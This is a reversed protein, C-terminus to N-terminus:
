QSTASDPQGGIKAMAVTGRTNSIKYENEVTAFSDVSQVIDDIYAFGGGQIIFGPMSRHIFTKNYHDNQVYNLFNAVSKPADAELLEIEINGLPTEIIATKAMAMVPLVLLATSVFVAVLFKSTITSSNLVIRFM